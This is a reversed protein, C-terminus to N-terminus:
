PYYGQELVLTEPPCHWVHSGRLPRHDAAVGVTAAVLQTTESCLGPHTMSRLGGGGSVDVLCDM